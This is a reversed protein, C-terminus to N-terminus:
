RWFVVKLTMSPRFFATLSTQGDTQLYNSAYTIVRRQRSTVLIFIPTLFGTRTQHLRAYARQMMAEAMASVTKVRNREPYKKLEKEKEIVKEANFIKDKNNNM